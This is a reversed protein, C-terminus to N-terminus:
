NRQTNLGQLLGNVREKYSGIYNDFLGLHVLICDNLVDGTVRYITKSEKAQEVNVGKLKDALFDPTEGM